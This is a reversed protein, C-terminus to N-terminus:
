HRGESRDCADDQAVLFRRRSEVVTKSPETVCNSTFINRAVGMKGGAKLGSVGGEPSDGKLSKNFFVAMLVEFDLEFGHKLFM